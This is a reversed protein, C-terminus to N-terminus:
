RAAAAGAVRVWEEVTVDGVYVFGGPARGSCCRRCKTGGSATEVTRCYPSSVVKDVRIGLAKFAVGIDRAMRRGDGSLNRQTECRAFDLKDTDVQDANTAAHRFDVLTKPEIRGTAAGM